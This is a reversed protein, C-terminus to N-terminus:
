ASSPSSRDGRRRVGNAGDDSCSKWAQEPDLGQLPVDVSWGPVAEVLNGDLRATGLDSVRRIGDLRNGRRAGRRSRGRDDGLWPARAPGPRSRRDALGVAALPHSGGRGPVVPMRAPARGLARRGRKRYETALAQGDITLRDITADFAPVVTPPAVAAAVRGARPDDRGPWGSRGAMAFRGVAPRDVAVRDVGRRRSDRGAGAAAAAARGAQLVGPRDDRASQGPPRGPLRPSRWSAACTARSLAAHDHPLSGGSGPIAWSPGARASRSSRSSRTSRTGSRSRCRRQGVLAPRAHARRLTGSNAKDYAQMVGQAFTGQQPLNKDGIFLGVNRLVGM